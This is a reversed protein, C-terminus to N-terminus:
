ALSSPSTILFIRECSSNGAYNGDAARRDVTEPRGARGRAALGDETFRLHIRVRKANELSSALVAM